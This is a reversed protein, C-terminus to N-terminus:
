FVSSSPSARVAPAIQGFGKLGAQEGALPNGEGQRLLQFGLGAAMGEPAQVELAAVALVLQDPHEGPLDKVHRHVQARVGGGEASPLAEPQGPFVPPHEVEWLIEGM